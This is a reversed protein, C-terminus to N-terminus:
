LNDLRTLSSFLSDPLSALYNDNLRRNTPPVRRLPSPRAPFPYTAPQFVVTAPQKLVTPHTLGVRLEPDMLGAFRCADGASRGDDATRM